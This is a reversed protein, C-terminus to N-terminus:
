KAGAARPRWACIRYGDKKLGSVLEPLGGCLSDAGLFIDLDGRYKEVTQLLKRAAAATSVGWKRRDLRATVPTCGLQRLTEEVPAEGEYWVRDLWILASEQLSERSQRIEEALLEPAEARSLLILSHGGAVIGRVLDGDKMQEATLLFAAQVTGLDKLVAKTSEPDQSEVLLYIKQGHGSHGIPDSPTISQEEAQKEYANYRRLLQGAAADVFTKDSLVASSSKIRLLPATETETITYTLGFHGCVLDLPLFVYGRRQIAQGSYTKGHKDFITNNKLDFRLDTQQDYLMALGLTDNRVYLVGTDRGEFFTSPVYFVGKSWFPMADLTLEELLRDNVAGLYIWDIPAAQGQGPVLGLLLAIALVFTLFRRKRNTKIPVDRRKM